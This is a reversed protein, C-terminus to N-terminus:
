LKSNFLTSFAEDIESNLPLVIKMECGFSTEAKLNVINYGDIAQEGNDSDYNDWKAVNIFEAKFM